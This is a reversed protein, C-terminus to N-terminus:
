LKSYRFTNVITEFLEKRWEDRFNKWDMINYIEFHLENQFDAYNETLIDGVRLDYEYYLDFLNNLPQRIYGMFKEDNTLNNYITYVVDYMRQSYEERNSQFYNDLQNEISKMRFPKFTTQEM